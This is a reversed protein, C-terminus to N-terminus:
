DSQSMSLKVFLKLSVAHRCYSCFYYSSVLQKLKKFTYVQYLMAM